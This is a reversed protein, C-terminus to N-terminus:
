YDAEINYEKFDSFPCNKETTTTRNQKQKKNQKTKIEKLSRGENEV